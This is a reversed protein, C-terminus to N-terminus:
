KNVYNRKYLIEAIEFDLQTDIEISESEEIPYFLCNNTIANKSQLLSEVKCIMVNFTPIQIPDLDQSNPTNSLDYNIPSGNYWAHKKAYLATILSDFQNSKTKFENYCQHLTEDRLLPATPQLIMIYKTSVSNGLYEYYQSNNCESSAYFEPRKKYQVQYKNALDKAIESDSDIVTPLGLKKAQKIKIELLSSDAFPKFNKNKVRTSGARAPIVITIDM